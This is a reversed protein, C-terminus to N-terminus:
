QVEETITLDEESIVAPEGEAPIQEDQGPVFEKEQEGMSEDPQEAAEDGPTPQEETMEPLEDATESSEEMPIDTEIVEGDAPLAPVIIDEEQPLMANLVSSEDLCEAIDDVPIEFEPEGAAYTAIEYLDYMIVVAEDTIYFARDDSIPLIDSLLVMQCDAAQSTIIDPIRGRWHQDESDFFDSIRYLEGTESSFTLPICEICADEDGYMDYLFMRISFIGNRNYEVRYDTFVPIGLYEAREMVASCVASSIAEAAEGEVKPFVIYSSDIRCVCRAVALPAFVDDEEVPAAVARRSSNYENIIQEVTVEPSASTVHRATDARQMAPEAEAACGAAFLMACATLAMCLKRM